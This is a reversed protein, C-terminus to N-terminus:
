YEIELDFSKKLENMAPNIEALRKFKESPTYAPGVSTENVNVTVNLNLKFNSLGKRLYILLEIKEDNLDKEAAASDVIFNVEFNNGITPNRKKMAAMLSMRGQKELKDSYIRWLGELM